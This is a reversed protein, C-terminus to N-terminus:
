ASSTSASQLCVGPRMERWRAPVWSVDGPCRALRAGGHEAGGEEVHHDLGRALRAARELTIEALELVQLDRELPRGIEDGRRVSAGLLDHPLLEFLRAGAVGEDALFASHPLAAVLGVAPDDIRDVARHVKEM